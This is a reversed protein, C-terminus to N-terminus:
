PLALYRLRTFQPSASKRSIAGGHVRYRTLVEPQILITGGRALMRAFLDADECPEEESRYGGLALALSRRYIMTPHTFALPQRAALLHQLEAETRPLPMLRGRVRGKVDILHYYSGAAALTPHAAVFALQRELRCPLMEDDADLRAIWEARAAELGLNLTDSIGSNAKRLVRVRADGQALAQLIAPTDDVSGDDVVIVEFAAMTQALVSTVAAAVFAAGNFVPM